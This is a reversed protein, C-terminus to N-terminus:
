CNSRQTVINGMTSVDYGGLAEVENKFEESHIVSILPELLKDEHFIKPIVLDYQEKLIPVFDNNMAKAASFIGLGVDAQGGAVAASIALHTFVERSYGKIKRSDM